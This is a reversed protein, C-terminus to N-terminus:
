RVALMDGTVEAQGVLDEIVDVFPGLSEAPLGLKAVATLMLGAGRVTYDADLIAKFKKVIDNKDLAVGVVDASLVAQALKWADRTEEKLTAEVTAKGAAQSGQSPTPFAPSCTLLDAPTSFVVLPRLL